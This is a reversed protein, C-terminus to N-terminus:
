IEGIAERIIDKLAAITEPKDVYCMIIRDEFISRLIDLTSEATHCTAGDRQFWINGSDEEGIKTILFEKLMARYRDDNDTVAMGQENEFFFPGIISRSWFRCWVTVRKPHSLEEIYALPNETAWICQIAM